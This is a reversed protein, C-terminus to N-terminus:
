PRHKGFHGKVKHCVQWIGNHDRWKHLCLPKKDSM